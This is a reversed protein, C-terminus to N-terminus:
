ANIKVPLVRSGNPGSPMTTSKRTGITPGSSTSLQFRKSRFRWGTPQDAENRVARVHKIHASMTTIGTISRASPRRREPGCHRPWDNPVHQEEFSRRHSEFFTSRTLLPVGAPSHLVNQMMSHFEGYGSLEQVSSCDPQGHNDRLSWASAAGQGLGRASPRRSRGSRWCSEKVESPRHSAHSERCHRVLHKVSLVCSGGHTWGRNCPLRHLEPAGALLATAVDADGVIHCHCIIVACGKPLVSSSLSTCGRSAYRVSDIGM